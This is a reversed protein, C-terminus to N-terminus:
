YHIQEYKKPITFPSKENDSFNVRKYKLDINITKDAIIRYHIHTPFMISDVKEFDDYYAEFIRHSVFDELRVKKIHFDKSDLWILQADNKSHVPKNKDLRRIKRKPLTSLIYDQGELYGKMKATDNYFDLTNGMMVSQLLDFDIEEGLISDSIFDYNGKFYKNGIYYLFMVSDQDLKVRAVSVSGLFYSINMWIISDKRIRVIGSFSEHSTDKDYDVTYHATLWKFSFNKAKLKSMLFYKNERKFTNNQPLNNSTEISKPTKCSLFHAIVYLSFSIYLLRRSRM